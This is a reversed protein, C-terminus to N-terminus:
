SEGGKEQNTNELASIRADQQELLEVACLMLEEAAAIKAFVPAKGLSAMRIKLEQVKTM